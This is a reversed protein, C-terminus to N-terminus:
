RGTTAPKKTAPKKTAAKGAAPKNAAPETTHPTPTNEPTPTVTVTARVAPGLRFQEDVPDGGYAAATVHYWGPMAWDTSLTCDADSRQGNWGIAVTAPQAKRVVVSQRPVAGRCDQTSWVRDSGSTIKLAMRSASVDWTCAESTRTTLSLTFLVPRGASAAGKVSPTAVVDSGECPGDPTALPLAARAGKTPTAGGTPQPTGAQPASGTPTGTATGSLVTAAGGAEAGVPQASPGSSGGSGLLRAIGFVLAFAVAM